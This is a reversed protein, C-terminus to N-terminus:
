LFTPHDSQFLFDIYGLDSNLRKTSMVSRSKRTAILNQVVIKSSLRRLVNFLFCRCHINGSQVSFRNEAKVRKRLIGDLEIINWFFYVLFKRLIFNNRRSEKSSQSPM